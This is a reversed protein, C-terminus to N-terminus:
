CAFGIHRITKNKTSLKPIDCEEITTILETTIESEKFKLVREALNMEAEELTKRVFRGNGYDNEGRIINFNKRLKNMAADTIKMQKESVMLKMIDCLENTTYDKFEVQFAIRSLMGPNRDLFQHMPETYGAFIVIVDDRHNEMEQVITNIAEDGFGNECCDCLSYAEDIFLVGGQAESFKKKVLLATSGAHDGVLDARGVEVFVGTALVNEDNMIEAFLRAVTTKATGPNGTFVMHLSVKERAIGKDICLKNLKYHAIAKHIIEKVSALGIMNDLEKKANGPKREKKMGEELMSIDNKTIQFLEDKKIVSADKGDSLLRVAQNQLARDILNRVYRGNGFNDTNRVKEFIYHAEKIAADTVWFGREKIMLKFIDTLEDATYDPFDIWYPIRSKLGENMKMFDHMRENYGALIVIVDDRRNEMEQILVTIATDSVMSYAEDIFLVGGKAALFAERIATVCEWGDLDMGGREVFAGSKLIEKEKAIGAFLKAVTTKASGPNGGFIMNMSCLRYEKGKRKRRENEVVDSAIISEIQKKVINLGILKNLRDYSSERTKDRDLMFAQSLDYSFAYFVNKNLCWAEFQEYAMLVDTQTFDNEPFLKMFESAQGAYEAYESDKILAKMYKIAARRDGRGERLMVPIVYKQLQPLLQYSFGPNDMNYTFIFLCENRYKKVLKEIYKCTMYYDVPNCGLKESLDFIIIGGYNNEIIEELYNNTKYLNPEIESIIEIRRGNIRNAKVLSQALTETMDCAAEVSRSSIIYHVGNGQYETNNSHLEINSLEKTFKKDYIAIKETKTKPIIKEEFKFHFSESNYYSKSNDMYYEYIFLNSLEVFRIGNNDFGRRKAERYCDLFEHMTIESPMLQIRKIEFVSELIKNIYTYAIELTERKEDLFFVALIKDDTERRYALVGIDNKLNRYMYSNVACIVNGDWRYERLYEKDQLLKKIKEEKGSVAFKYYRM